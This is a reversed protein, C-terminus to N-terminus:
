QKEKTIFFTIVAGIVGLVWIVALTSMPIDDVIGWLCSCLFTAVFTGGSAVIRIPM